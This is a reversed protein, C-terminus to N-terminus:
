LCPHFRATHFVFPRLPDYDENGLGCAENGLRIFHGCIGVGVVVARDLNIYFANFTYSPTLAIKNDTQFVIESGSSTDISYVVANTEADHFTIFAAMLPWVIERDIKQTPQKALWHM